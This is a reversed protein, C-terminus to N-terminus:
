KLTHTYVRDKTPTAHSGCHSCMSLSLSFSLSFLYISLSLSFITQVPRHDVGAGSIPKGTIPFAAAPEVSPHLGHQSMPRHTSGHKGERNHPSPSPPLPSPQTQCGFGKPHCFSVGNARTWGTGYISRLPPPKRSRGQWLFGLRPPSLSASLLIFVSASGIM